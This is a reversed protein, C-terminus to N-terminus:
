KSSNILATDKELQTLNIELDAMEALMAQHIKKQALAFAKAKPHPVAYKKELERRFKVAENEDSLMFMHRIDTRLESDSTVREAISKAYQADEELPLYQPPVNIFKQNGVSVRIGNFETFVPLTLLQFKGKRIYEYVFQRSVGRQTCYDKVTTLTM